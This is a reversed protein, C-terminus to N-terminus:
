LDLPLGEISSKNHADRDGFPDRIYMRYKFNYSLKEFTFLELFNLISNKSPVTAESKFSISKQHFQPLLRGGGSVQQHFHLQSCRSTPISWFPWVLVSVSM